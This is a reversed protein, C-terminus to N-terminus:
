PWAVFVDESIIWGPINWKAEEVDVLCPDDERGCEEEPINRQM